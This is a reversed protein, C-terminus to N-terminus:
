SWRLRSDPWRLQRKWLKNSVLLYRPRKLTLIITSTSDKPFHGTGIRLHQGHSKNPILGNKPCFGQVSVTTSHFQPSLRPIACRVADQEFQRGYAEGSSQGSM